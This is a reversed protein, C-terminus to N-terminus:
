EFKAKFDRGFLFIVRMWEITIGRDYGHYGVIDSEPRDSTEPVSSTKPLLEAVEENPEGFLEAAADFIPKLEIDSTFTIRGYADHGNRTLGIRKASVAFEENM